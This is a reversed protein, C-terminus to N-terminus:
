CYDQGCLSPCTKYTICHYCTQATITTCIGGGASITGGAADTLQEPVLNRLTERHLTLRIKATKKM